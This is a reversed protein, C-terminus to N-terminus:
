KDIQQRKGGIPFNPVVMKLVLETDTPLQQFASELLDNGCTVGNPVLNLVPILVV